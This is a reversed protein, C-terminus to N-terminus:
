MGAEKLKNMLGGYGVMEKGYIDSRLIDLCAPYIQYEAIHIQSCNVRKNLAYMSKFTKRKRSIVIILEGHTHSHQGPFRVIVDGIAIDGLQKDVGLKSKRNYRIKGKIKM